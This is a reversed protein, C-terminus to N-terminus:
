LVTIIGPADAQQSHVSEALSVYDFNYVHRSCIIPNIRSPARAAREIVFNSLTQWLLSIDVALHVTTCKSVKHYIWMQVGFVAVAKDFHKCSVFFIVNNYKFESVKLTSSFSFCLCKYCGNPTKDM